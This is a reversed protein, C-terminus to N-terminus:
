SSMARLADVIEQARQYRQAPDKAVCKMVIEDMKPPIGDVLESPKPPMETVQRKLVEGDVFFINGTLMEHLVLGMSYIDSRGDLQKAMCQEPSMYAPTGMVMNDQTLQAGDAKALGFDMIKVLGGKALVINDSKIDRHVIGQEHMADLAACAQSMINAAERPDLKTKSRIYKFLNPGEIFEMAIYAKGESASIDYIAVINPHNIRAATRAERLFRQKYDENSDILSGLFKLAVKRDLQKDRALYVVGMGGRGLEREFDYRAGLTNEVMGMIKDDTQAGTSPAQAQGPILGSTQDKLISIRSDISSVRNDIDRFSKDVAGIKLFIKKSEDLEGLQEKALGLMYFYDINGREVRKGLLHNELTAAAHQYDHSEYFARGLLARSTDFNPDNEPVRQLVKVANPYRGAHMYGLGANYFAGGREYCEASRVPENAKAFCEGAKLWEEAGGYAMGAEKWRQLQEYFRGGIRNADKDRGAAKFAKAAEELKGARVFVDGARGLDGGQQFLQGAEEFREAKEFTSAIGVLLSQITSQEIESRAEEGRLMALCAEAAETQKEHDDRPSQFYEKYSDAAEAYKAGKSHALAASAHDGQQAFSDAAQAFKGADMYYTGALDFKGEKSMMKAAKAGKGAAAWQEAASVNDGAKKFFKAALKPKGTAAYAEALKDWAKAKKLMPIAQENLSVQDPETNMLGEGKGLLQDIDATAALNGAGSKRSKLKSYIFNLLVLVAAILIIRYLMTGWEPINAGAAELIFELPMDIITLVPELAEM